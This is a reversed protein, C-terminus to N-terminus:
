HSEEERHKKRWTHHKFSKKKCNFLGIKLGANAGFRSLDKLEAISNSNIPNVLQYSAGLNLKAYKFLNLEVNVGPQFYFARDSNHIHIHRYNPINLEHHNVLSSDYQYQALGFDLPISLHVISKPLIVYELRGFMAHMGLFKGVADSNEDRLHKMGIGIGLRNNLQIAGIVSKAFNGDKYFQVEPQFYIGWSNVKSWKFLHNITDQASAAHFLLGTFLLSCILKKM